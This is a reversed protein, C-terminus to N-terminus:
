SEQGIFISRTYRSNTDPGSIGEDTNCFALISSRHPRRCVLFPRCLTYKDGGVAKGFADVKLLEEVRNDM